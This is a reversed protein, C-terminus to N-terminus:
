EVRMSDPVTIYSPNELQYITIDKLDQTADLGKGGIVNQDKRRIRVRKNTYFMKTNQDWWLEPAWLTDGKINFVVVSDRLYVKNRTELHKGYLANLQSEVLGISDYFNVHLTKPFELYSTDLNYRLMYPSTLKAKLKGNQSLLSEIKYAEEINAKRETVRNVVGEDNECSYFFLCSIIFAAQLFQKYFFPNIM